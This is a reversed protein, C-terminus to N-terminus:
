FKNLVNHLYYFVRYFFNVVAMAMEDQIKADDLILKIFCANTSCSIDPPVAHM